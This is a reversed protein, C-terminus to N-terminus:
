ARASGIPIVKASKGGTVIREVHDAWQRLALAMEPGFSHKQYTGVIGKFTGSKHALIKEITSIQIGIAAMTSATTRRIDHLVWHPGAGMKADIQKKIRDFHGLPAKGTITFVLDGDGIRPMREIIALAQAPLPVMHSKRGKMKEPPITWVGDAIESRRMGAIESRRQGLLLMMQVCAGASGGIDDCVKWLKKIEDISLVRDRQTEKGRQEVGICPSAEIVDRSALWKFFKSLMAQVRNAMIPRDEAVGDVLDNIDKRKIDHVTRGKWAPLAFDDLVHKYQRFTSTRKKKAHREIFTAAWREVTDDITSKKATASEKAAQKTVVPDRGQAVEFLADAALKRAAALTIGPALTLKRTRGSDNRFRVIFSKRGTPYIALRLGRAGPDPMEYPKSRPKLNEITIPTLAKEMKM